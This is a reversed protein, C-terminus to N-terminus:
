ILEHEAYWMKDKSHDYDIQKKAFQIFEDSPVDTEIEKVTLDWEGEDDDTNKFHDIDNIIDIVRTGKYKQEFQLASYDYGDIILIKM